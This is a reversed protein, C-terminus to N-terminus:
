LANLNKGFVKKGIEVASLINNFKKTKLLMVQKNKDIKVCNIDLKTIIGL